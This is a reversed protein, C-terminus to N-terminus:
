LPEWKVVPKASTDIRFWWGGLRVYFFFFGNGVEFGLQWRM